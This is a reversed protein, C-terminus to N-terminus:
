DVHVGYLYQRWIKLTFVVAAMELDHTLYNNEYVKLQRSACAIVKGNQMLVCVLGIQSADFCVELGNIGKTIDFDPPKKQTLMTLPLAISSFGEVFRRYYSSLGLLCQIKTPSFPGHCNKVAEIKKSDVLIDKLDKLQIPAMHYPPISIPRMNPLFDIGFNIERNPPVGSLDDPFVKSFENVVPVLEFTFTEFNTDM